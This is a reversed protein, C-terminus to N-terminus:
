NKDNDTPKTPSNALTFHPENKKKDAAEEESPLDTRLITNGLTKDMSATFEELTQVAGKSSVPQEGGESKLPNNSTM